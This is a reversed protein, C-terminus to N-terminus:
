EKKKMELISTIKKVRETIEQRCGVDDYQTLPLPSEGNVRYPPQLHLDILIKNYNEIKNLHKISNSTEKLVLTRKALVFSVWRESPFYLGLRQM